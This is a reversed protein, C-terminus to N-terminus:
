PLCMQVSLHPLDFKAGIGWSRALGAFPRKSINCQARQSVNTSYNSISVNNSFVLVPMLNGTKLITCQSKLPHSKPRISIKVACCLVQLAHRFQKNISQQHPHLYPQQLPVITLTLALTTRITTWCLSPFRLMEERGVDRSVHTPLINKWGGGIDPPPQFSFLSFDDVHVGNSM